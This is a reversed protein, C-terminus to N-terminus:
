CKMQFARLWAIIEDPPLLTAATDAGGAFYIEGWRDAIV